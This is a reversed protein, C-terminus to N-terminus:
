GNCLDRSGRWSYADAVVPEDRRRWSLDTRQRLTQNTSRLEARTRPPISPHRSSGDRSLAGPNLVRMKSDTIMPCLNQYRKRDPALVYLRSNDDLTLEAGVIQRINASKAALYFRPARLTRRSRWAGDRPLRTAGRAGRIRPRLRAKLFASLM